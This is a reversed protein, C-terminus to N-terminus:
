PLADSPGLRAAVRNLLAAGLLLLALALLSVRAGFDGTFILLLGADLLVVLVTAWVVGAVRGLGGTISVGGLVAITIAPLAMGSGTTGADARASAFEAVTVVAVLGSLLGSIVYASFRMSRVPLSTWQSAVDNTGVAFLYRGFVTRRLLFWMLVIAPLMYEILGLPVAPLHLGLVGFRVSVTTSYLAVVRPATIPNAGNVLLALSKFAYYTALTAILAPMGVYSVLFGNVAGCAAGFAAAFLIGLWLSWGWEGYALGFLMGTLSVIAGVSLDIGGRGSLMVIAEALGLMALPVANILSSSMYEVDFPASTHGMFSLSMMTAIVVALAIVLLLPRRGVIERLLKAGWRPRLPTRLSIRASM